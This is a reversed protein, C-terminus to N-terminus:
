TGSQPTGRVVWAIAFGALLWGVIHDAATVLTHNMPHHFWAWNAGDAVVAVFVGLFAVFSVRDRYRRVGPSAAALMAAAILAALFTLIFGRLMMSSETDNNGAPDYVLYAIPGERYKRKHDEEAKKQQEETMDPRHGWGPIWYVGREQTSDKLASVVAEEDPLQGPMLHWNLVAWSLFGWAFVVVAGLVAGILIRIM